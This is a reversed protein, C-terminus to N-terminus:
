GDAESSQERLLTDPTSDLMQEKEIVQMIILEYACWCGELPPLASNRSHQLEHPDYRAQLRSAQPAEDSNWERIKGRRLQM